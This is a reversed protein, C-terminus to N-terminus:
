PAASSVLVAPLPGRSDALMQKDVASALRTLWAGGAADQVLGVLIYRTKKGEVLASDAHYNRWTGSKRFISV